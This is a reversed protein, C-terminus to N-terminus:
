GKKQTMAQRFQEETAKLLGKVRMLGMVPGDVWRGLMEKNLYTRFSSEAYGTADLVDDMKFSRSQGEQLRLFQLLRRQKEKLAAM